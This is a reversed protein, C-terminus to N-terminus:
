GAPQLQGNKSQEIEEKLVRIRDMITHMVAKATERNKERHQFESLDVPEGFRVHIRKFMRPLSSGIPLVKDMGDICVPVVTPNTELIM